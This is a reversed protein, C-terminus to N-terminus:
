CPNKEKWKKKKNFHPVPKTEIQKQKKLKRLVDKNATKSFLEGLLFPGLFHCTLPFNKCSKSADFQFIDSSDSGWEQGNTAVVHEGHQILGVEGVVGAHGDVVVSWGGEGVGHVVFERM